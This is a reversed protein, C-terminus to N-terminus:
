GFKKYIALEEANPEYATKLHVENGRQIYVIKLTKGRATCAIFWLTPPDTRRYERDDKLLRGTKNEFCQEVEERTVGHRSALKEVVSASILLNKM